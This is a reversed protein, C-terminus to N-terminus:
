HEAYDSTQQVDASMYKRGCGELNMMLLDNWTVNFSNRM